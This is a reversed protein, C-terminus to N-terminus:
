GYHRFAGLVSSMTLVHLVRHGATLWILKWTRGMFQYDAVITPVVVGAGVVLGLRMSGALTTVGAGSLLVALSFATIGTAVVRVPVTIRPDGHRWREHGLAARWSDGFVGPMYWIAGFVMGAVAAIIVALYDISTLLNMLM